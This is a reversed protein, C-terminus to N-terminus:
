SKFKYSLNVILRHSPVIQLSSAEQELPFEILGSLSWREALTLRIEPGLYLSTIRTDEAPKGQFRDKDKFEGSLRAALSLTAKHELYLYAGASFHWQLDDAFQYDFDGETRLVYQVTANAFLRNKQALAAAGVIFDFSGTGLVLDHGHIASLEDGEEEHVHEPDTEERLRSSDGSPIKLGSFIQWFFFKDIEKHRLPSYRAVLAIDGLGEERGKEIRGDELPRRFSRRILPVNLQFAFNDSLAYEAYIQTISSNFNQSLLNSVDRGDRNIDAFRTYQESAGVRVFGERLEELSAAGHLACLDCAFSVGPVISVILFATLFSVYARM